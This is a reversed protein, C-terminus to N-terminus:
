HQFIIHLDCIVQMECKYKEFDAASLSRRQETTPNSVAREKPKVKSTKLICLHREASSADQKRKLRM